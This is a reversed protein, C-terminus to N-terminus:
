GPASAATSSATLCSPCASDAIQYFRSQPPLAYAIYALPKDLLFLTRAARANELDSSQVSQVLSPPVLRRNRGCRSAVAGDRDNGFPPARPSAASAAGADRRVVRL